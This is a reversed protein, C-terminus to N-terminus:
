YVLPIEAIFRRRFSEQDKASETAYRAREIALAAASAIIGFFLLIFASQLQELVLAVDLRIGRKGAEYLRAAQFCFLLIM